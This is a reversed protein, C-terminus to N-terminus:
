KPIENKIILVIRTTIIKKNPILSLFFYKYLWSFPDGNSHPNVGLNLARKGKEIRKKRIENIKKTNSTSNTRMNGKIEPIPNFLWKIIWNIILTNM